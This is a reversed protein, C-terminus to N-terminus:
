DPGRGSGQDRDRDPGRDSGLYQLGGTPTLVARVPRDHDTAPISDILEGDHLLALTLADPAVRALARDYSGGGRGLRVGHRDVAVAPVVVLEAVGIAEPGLRGTGPERLGRGAAVLCGSGAYPAWDLDLDPRLVPLLLQGDRGLAAALTEPLEVGGPESGVPVYGTIVQPRVRLVLARLEARLREAAALRAPAPLARRRALMTIRLASKGRAVGEDSFDPM